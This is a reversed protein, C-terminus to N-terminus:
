GGAREGCLCSLYAGMKSGMLLCLYYFLCLLPQVSVRSDDNEHSPEINHFYLVFAHDKFSLM